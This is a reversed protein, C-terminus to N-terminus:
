PASGTPKPRASKVEVDGLLAYARIRLLPTGPRRPVPALRLERGGLLGFGHLEAEVGEPVEIKINGLITVLTMEVVADSVVVERLDLRLNGLLAFGRLRAPLRWRGRRRQDGLIGVVWTVTPTSGVAPAPAIDATTAALRAATDAAWVAGVRDSFETLTLRGTACAEQLVHAAADREADSIPVPPQAPRPEIEV